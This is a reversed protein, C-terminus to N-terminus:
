KHGKGRRKGVRKPLKVGKRTHKEWRKALEPMNAHLYARQAKSRMPM